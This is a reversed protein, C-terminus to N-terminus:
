LVLIPVNKVFKVDDLPINNKEFIKIIEKQVNKFDFNEKLASDKLQIVACTKQDTQQDSTSLGLFACRETYPFRKLLVEAQM